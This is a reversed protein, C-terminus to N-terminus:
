ICIGSWIPHMTVNVVVDPKDFLIHKRAIIEDPSLASFTFGPLDDEVAAGCHDYEGVM